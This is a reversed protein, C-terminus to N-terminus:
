SKSKLIRKAMNFIEGRTANRNPYFKDAEDIFSYSFATNILNIQWGETVDSYKPTTNSTEIKIGAAKMLLALAEARTISSEPNFSKNLTSVIDNDAGIEVARCVWTNPKSSSVDKFINRCTYSEPLNFGGLKMAMGIVEQRLVNSNLNYAEESDQQKVIGFSALVNGDSNSDITKQNTTKTSHQLQEKQITSLRSKLADLYKSADVFYNGVSNKTLSENLSARVIKPSVWGYQNYGLAIIGTIMPASFSTGNAINYNTGFETNFFPISTSVIGEGPAMFAICGNYNTWFTRYGNKDSASVGISYDTNGKNNCVPSIPNISLDLGVQSKTYVDGNGAAIIVIIGKDYARKIVSDYKDSYTAFQSGGLSLNIINAGNDIAYNMARIINEDSANDDLGFVRLPMFKVNKAIGAIGENNNITAGIIGAIMTGHEGTNLNSIKDGVFDIIKSAGYVTNSEIWIKGSLDPHNLFVGDDIIAVIVENSNTVKNWAEPINLSKLYYQAHSLTDNSPATKRAETYELIKKQEEIADTALKKKESDSAIDYAKQFYKLAGTYDYKDNLELAYSLYSFYMGDISLYYEETSLKNFKINNEYCQASQEYSKNKLYDYCTSANGARVQNLSAILVILVFISKKM